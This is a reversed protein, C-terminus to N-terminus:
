SMDENKLDEVEGELEDCDDDSGPAGDVGGCGNVEEAEGGDSASDSEQECGHNTDMSNRKMAERKELRAALTSKPVAPDAPEELDGNSLLKSRSQSRTEM